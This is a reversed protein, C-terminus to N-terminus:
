NEDIRWQGDEHVVRLRGCRAWGTRADTEDTRPLPMRHAEREPVFVEVTGRHATGRFTYTLEDVPMNEYWSDIVDASPKAGVAWWVLLAPLNKDSALKKNWAHHDGDRQERASFASRYLAADNTQMARLARHVPRAQPIVRAENADARVAAQTSAEPSTTAAACGDLLLAATLICRSTINQGNM